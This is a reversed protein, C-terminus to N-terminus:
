FAYKLRVQLRRNDEFGGFFTDGAGGLLDIGVRLRVGDAIDWDLGPQVWWDESELNYVGQATVKAFTGLSLEMKGFLSKQFIHNLDTSEYTEDQGDIQFERIWQVLVFLDKEPSIDRFTYDIGLVYQGYPDDIEPDSGDPDDTLYYAGEGRLGLKNFTTAFDTGVAPRRHYRRQWTVEAATFDTNIVTTQHIVPLDDFGDFWSISYDWGRSGGALKLAYGSSAPGQNPFLTGGDVYTVDLAPTGIQPYVPNPVTTPLDLDPWWRSDPEPLVSRGLSPAVVGVLTWGGLYFKARASLAGIKEDETDLLDSWDWATLNDTPNLGDAQGWAHLQKGVRLDLAKFYLDIYAEDLYVRDRTPDAQDNRIEISGFLAANSGAEHQLNLQLIGQNRGNVKDARGEQFYTINDYEVFGGLETQAWGPRAFLVLASFVMFTALGAIRPM